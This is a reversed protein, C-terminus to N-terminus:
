RNDKKVQAALGLYFILVSCLILGIWFVRKYFSRIIKRYSVTELQMANDFLNNLKIADQADIVAPNLYIEILENQRAKIYGRKKHENIFKIEADHQRSLDTIIVDPANYDELYPTKPWINGFVFMKRRHSVQPALSESTLVTLNKPINNLFAQNQQNLPYSAEWLAKEMRFIMPLESCVLSMFGLAIILAGASLKLGSKTRQSGSSSNERRIKQIGYILAIIVLANLGATYHATTIRFGGYANFLRFGLSPGLLFIAGPALIPLFAFPAVLLSFFKLPNPVLLKKWLAPDASKLHAFYSWKNLFTHEYFFMPDIVLSFLALITLALCILLWGRRERLYLMFVGVGLCDIIVSEKCLMATFFLFFMSLNKGKLFCYFGMLILPDAFTQTHFLFNISNRLPAYLFVCVAIMISLKGSRTIERGILYAFIISLSDFATSFIFLVNVNDYVRYLQALLVFIPKFRESFVHMGGRVSTIMFDGHATNWIVQDYIGLDWLSTMFGKHSFIQYSALSIFYSLALILIAAPSKIWTMLNQNFLGPLFDQKTAKRRQLYLVLCFLCLVARLLEFIQPSAEFFTHTEWSTIFAGATLSFLLVALFALALLCDLLKASMNM